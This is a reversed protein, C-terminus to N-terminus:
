EYSSWTVLYRSVQHMAHSELYYDPTKEATEQGIPHMRMFEDPDELAIMRFHYYASTIRGIELPKINLRRKLTSSSAQRPILPAFTLTKVAGAYLDCMLDAKSANNILSSNRLLIKEYMLRDWSSENEAESTPDSALGMNQAHMLQVAIDYCEVVRPSVADSIRAANLRWIDCSKRSTTNLAKIQASRDCQAYIRIILEAAVNELSTAAQCNM